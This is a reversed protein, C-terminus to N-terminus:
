ASRVRHAQMTSQNETVAITNLAGGSNQWGALEVYDGVAMSIHITRACVQVVQAASGAYGGASSANIMSGNLMWGAYRVGTASASFSTGGSFQYWGAIQAIYRSTNITLSHGGASDVDETDLLIATWAGNPISQAVAQRFAGIPPNIIAQLMGRVSNLYDADVASGNICDPLLSPDTIIGISM